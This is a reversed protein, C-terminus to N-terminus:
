KNYVNIMVAAIVTIVMITLSLSLAVLIGRFILGSKSYPSKSFYQFYFITSYLLALFVTFSYVSKLIDLDYVFIMTFTSIFGILMEGSARYANLVLHEAYNQKAKRFILWSFFAYIPITGFIYAKTYEKTIKDLIEVFTKDMKDSAFVDSLSLPSLSQLLLDITIILLILTFYNFHKARRGEVFERISHGPRVILEKITYFFGKDLHFIGHVFDHSFVHALSFRHTSTKQGCKECYADQVANGCNLCNTSM